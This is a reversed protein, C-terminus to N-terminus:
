KISFDSLGSEIGASNEFIDNMNLTSIEENFTVPHKKKLQKSLLHNREDESNSFKTATEEKELAEKFSATRM